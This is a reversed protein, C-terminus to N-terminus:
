RVIDGIRLTNEDWAFLPIGVSLTDYVKEIKIKGMRRRGRYVTLVMDTEVGDDNGLNTIVFNYKFDIKLIVGPEMIPAVLSAGGPTPTVVLSGLGVKLKSMVRDIKRKMNRENRRSTKLEGELNDIDQKSSVLKKQITEMAKQMTDNRKKLFSAENEFKEKESSLQAVKTSLQTVQTTLTENKDLQNKLEILLKESDNVSESLAHELQKKRDAVKSYDGQLFAVREKFSKLSRAAVRYKNSLNISAVALILLFLILLVSLLRIYNGSHFFNSKMLRSLVSEPLFQNGRAVSPKQAPEPRPKPLAPKKEFPNKLAAFLKKPKDKMTEDPM